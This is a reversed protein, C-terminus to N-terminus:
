RKVSKGTQHVSVQTSCETTSPMTKWSPTPSPRAKANIGRTHKAANMRQKANSRVLGASLVTSGKGPMEDLM